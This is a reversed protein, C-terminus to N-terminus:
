RRSSYYEDTMGGSPITLSVTTGVGIQSEVWLNGSCLARLRRRVNEIGIHSKGDKAYASVDFGVGNDRVTIVVEDAKVATKIWIAGGTSRTTVGHLVANEVIPQVTLPPLLFDKQGIEFHVELRDEFRKKELSLYTSIHKLEEDFRVLRDSSLSDMNTRLYRSFDLVTRRAEEPNSICLESIASLANYLFHPQIQSLMIATNSNILELEQRSIREETEKQVNIYILLLSIMMAVYLVMLQPQLATIVVAVFPLVSCSLFWWFDRQHLAKRLKLLQFIVLACQLVDILYVLWNWSGIYYVNNEDVRYLMGNFLSAVAMFILVVTLVKVGMNIEVKPLSWALHNAAKKSKPPCQGTNAKISASTVIYNMFLIYHLAGVFYTIFNGGIVLIRFFPGSWGDFGWAVIDGLTTIIYSILMWLFAKDQKTKQWKGSLSVWIVGIVIVCMIEMTINIWKFDM